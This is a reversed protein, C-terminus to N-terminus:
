RPSAESGDRVVSCLVQRSIYSELDRSVETIKLDFNNRYKQNQLGAPSGSFRRRPSSFRRPSGPFRGKLILPTISLGTINLDKQSKVLPGSKMESPLPNLIDHEVIQKEKALQDKAKEKAIFAKEKSMQILRWPDISPRFSQNQNSDTDIRVTLREPSQIMKQRNCVFQSMVIPRTPSASESSDDSSLDSDSSLESINFQNAERMALIYDYTRMGKRILVIHFFFLQGLAASGYATIVFLMVSFAVLLGRPFKVHFERFLEQEVGTKDVFCRVFVAIATGAESILMLLVSIMLLIFTTYNKKGVCNNLWRCHHDFGEICRNCTRCHKSHKHVKFSCLSCFSLDDNQQHEYDDKTVLPFTLLPQLHLHPAFNNRFMYKRRLCTKLIKRELNRFFTIVIQGILFGHNVKVKRRGRCHRAKDSPDTATCRVFLGVVSVVLTSFISFVTLSAIRNGVFPALFLYFAAVLLTFVVMGAIQLPHLPLQWGHRRHQPSYM